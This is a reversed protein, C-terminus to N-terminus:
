ITNGNIYDYYHKLRKALTNDREIYFATILLCYSERIEVVVLYREEELLMHVRKNSGVGEYWIKIGECDVCFAPDCNHNEIFSRVWRIRECRRFDPTRNRNKHFDECTIHFFAEEKDYEMPHRRINVPRGDYQPKSDIFDAKFIDYLMEEYMKWDNNYNEYLELPPLWCTSEM